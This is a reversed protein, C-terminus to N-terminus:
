LLLLDYLASNDPNKVSERAAEIFDKVGPRLINLAKEGISKARPDDLKGVLEEVTNVLM